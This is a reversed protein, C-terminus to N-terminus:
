CARSSRTRLRSASAASALACPRQVRRQRQRVLGEQNMGVVDLRSLKGPTQTLIERRGLGLLCAVALAEQFARPTGQLELVQGLGLTLHLERHLGSRRVGLDRDHAGREDFCPRRALLGVRLHLLDTRLQRERAVFEPIPSRASAIWRSSISASRWGDLV